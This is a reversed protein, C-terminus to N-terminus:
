ILTNRDHNGGVDVNSLPALQVQTGYVVVQVQLM